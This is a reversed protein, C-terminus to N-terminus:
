WLSLICCSGFDRVITGTVSVPQCLTTLDGGQGGVDHQSFM